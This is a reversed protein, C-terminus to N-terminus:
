RSQGGVGLASAGPSSGLPYHVTEVSREAGLRWLSQIIGGRTVSRREPALLEAEGSTLEWLVVSM